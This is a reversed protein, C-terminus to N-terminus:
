VIRLTNNVDRWVSGAVLGIPSTPLNSLVIGNGILTTNHYYNIQNYIRGNNNPTPLIFDNNGIFYDVSIDDPSHLDIIGTNRDILPKKRNILNKLSRM